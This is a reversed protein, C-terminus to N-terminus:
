GCTNTHGDCLCVGSSGPRGAPHWSGNDCAFSHGRSSCSSRDQTSCRPLMVPRAAPTDTEPQGAPESLAGCGTVLFAAACIELAHRM